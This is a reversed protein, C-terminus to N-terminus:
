DGGEGLDIDPDDDDVPIEDDSGGGGGAGSGGSGSGDGSGGSNQGSGGGADNQGGSGSGGSGSGDSVSGGSGSGGAGQGGSGSPLGQSGGDAEDSSAYIENAIGGLASQINNGLQFTAYGLGIVLVSLMLAYEASAAASRDWYFRVITRLRPV